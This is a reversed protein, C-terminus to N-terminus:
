ISTVQPNLNSPETGWDGIGLFSGTQCFISVGHEPEWQCDFDLAVVGTLTWIRLGELECLQGVGSGDILGYRALEGSFEESNAADRISTLFEDSRLSAMLQRKALIALDELIPHILTNVSSIIADHEDSPNFGWVCASHARPHSTNVEEEVVTCLDLEAGPEFPYLDFRPRRIIKLNNTFIEFGPIQLTIRHITVVPDWCITHITFPSIEM